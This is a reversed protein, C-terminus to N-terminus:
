QTKFNHFIIDDWGQVERNRSPGRVLIEMFKTIKYYLGLNSLVKLRIKVFINRLKIFFRITIIKM